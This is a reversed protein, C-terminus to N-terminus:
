ERSGLPAVVFGPRASPAASQSNGLATRRAAELGRPTQRAASAAGDLAELQREKISIRNRASEIDSSAIRSPSSHFGVLAVAVTVAAAVATGVHAVRFRTLRRPLEFSVSPEELSATRLTETFAELDDAFARCAECRALHSAVLAEEFESSESDLRLSVEQRTRHCVEPLIPSVRVDRYVDV